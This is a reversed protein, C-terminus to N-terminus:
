YSEPIGNQNITTPPLETKNAPNALAIATKSVSFLDTVTMGKEVLSKVAQRVHEPNVHAALMEKAAKRQGKIKQPDDSLNIRRADQFALALGEAGAAGTGILNAVDRAKAPDYTGRQLDTEKIPQEGAIKWDLPLDPADAGHKNSDKNLVKSLQSESVGANRQSIGVNRQSIHANLKNKMVVKGTDAYVHPRNKLDPTLDFFYGDKCLEEAHRMVTAPSIGLLEGITALSARCVGDSMQCFRWMAGHVAARTEDKYEQVVVDFLPTFGSIEQIIQKPADLDIGIMELADELYKPKDESM